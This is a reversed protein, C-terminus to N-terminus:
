RPDYSLLEEVVTTAELLSSYTLRYCPHDEVWRLFTSVREPTLPPNLWAGTEFLLQLAAVSPVATLQTGADREYTSFVVCRAPRGALSREPQSAALYRVESGAIVATPLGLLHPFYPGIIDWSGKKIAMPVPLPLLHGSGAHLLCLDDGFYDLGSHTLAAVLTSKGSGSVGPIAICHSGNGVVGAHFVALLDAQRYCGAIIAMLLSGKVEALPLGLRTEGHDCAVCYGGNTEWVRIHFMGEPQESSFPSLLLDLWQELVPTGYSVSFTMGLISYALESHFPANDGTEDPQVVDDENCVPRNASAEWQAALADVDRRAAALPVNFERTLQYAIQEPGNGTQLGQWVLGAVQNLIVLRGTEADLLVLHDEFPLSTWSNKM